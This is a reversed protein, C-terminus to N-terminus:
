FLGESLKGKSELSTTISITFGSLLRKSSCFCNYRPQFCQSAQLCLFCISVCAHGLLLAKSLSQHLWLFFVSVSPQVSTSCPSFLHSFAKYIRDICVFSSFLWSQEQQMKILILIHFTFLSLYTWSSAQTPTFTRYSKLLVDPATTQTLLIFLERFCKDPEPEELNVQKGKLRQPDSSTM